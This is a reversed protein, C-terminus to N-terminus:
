KITVETGGTSEPLYISVAVEALDKLKISVPDSIALGGGAILIGPKGDFTLAYDSGAVIAGAESRLAIHATGVRM